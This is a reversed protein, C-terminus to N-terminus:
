KNTLLDRWMRQMKEGETEKDEAIQGAKLTHKKQYEREKQRGEDTDMGDIKIM